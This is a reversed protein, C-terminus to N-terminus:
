LGAKNKIDNGSCVLAGTGAAALGLVGAGIRQEMPGMDMRYRSPTSVRFYNDQSPALYGEDVFRQYRGPGNSWRPGGVLQETDAGLYGSMYAEVQQPTMVEQEIFWNFDEDEMDGSDPRAPYWGEQGKYGPAGRETLTRTVEEDRAAREARRQEKSQKRNPAMDMRDDDGGFSFNTHEELLEKLRDSLGRRMPYPAIPAM